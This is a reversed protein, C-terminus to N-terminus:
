VAELHIRSVLVLNKVNVRGPLDEGGDWTISVLDFSGGFSDLATITGKAFPMAGSIAGISRLFARSYKVRDGVNM